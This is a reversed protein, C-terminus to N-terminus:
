IFRHSTRTLLPGHTTKTSTDDNTTCVLDNYYASLRRLTCTTNVVLQYKETKHVDDHTSKNRISTTHQSDPKTVTLEQFADHAHRVTPHLSELTAEEHAQKTTIRVRKRCRRCFRAAWTRCTTPYTSRFGCGGVSSRMTSKLLDKVRGEPSSSADRLLRAHLSTGRTTCPCCLSGTSATTASRWRRARPRSVVEM